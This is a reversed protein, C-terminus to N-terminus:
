DFKSLKEGIFNVIQPSFGNKILTNMKDTLEKKRKEKHCICQVLDYTVSILEWHLKVTIGSPAFAAAETIMEKTKVHGTIFRKKTEYLLKFQKKFTSLIEIPENYAIYEFCLLRVAEEPNQSLLKKIKESKFSEINNIIKDVVGRGVEKGAFADKYIKKAKQFLKLNVACESCSKLHEEFEKLESENLQESMYSAIKDTEKCNM